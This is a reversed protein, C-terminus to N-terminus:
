PMEVYVGQGFQALAHGTSIEPYDVYQPRIASWIRTRKVGGGSPIWYDPRRAEDIDMLEVHGDFFLANGRHVNQKNGHRFSNGTMSAGSLNNGLPWARTFGTDWAGPDSFAGGFGGSVQIDHDTQPESAVKFRGGDAMMIKRSLSTGVRDIRPAYGSGGALYIDEAIPRTMWLTGPGGWFGETAWRPRSASGQWLFERATSYSMSLQPMFSLSEAQFGVPHVAGSEFPLSIDNNSPCAFVGYAGSMSRATGGIEGAGSLVAFRQDRRRPLSADDGLYGAALPGAWDFPQVAEPRFDIMNQGVPGMQNEDTNLLSRGSTAPSGVLWGRNASSYTESAIGIQWLNAGCVVQRASERASGLVPVLIGILLAIISVVILLEILTFACRRRNGERSDTRILSM